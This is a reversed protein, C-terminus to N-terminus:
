GAFFANNVDLQRLVWGRSAAQGLVLRITPKKVVPSLTKFYDIGPRQHFDKTVLRSKFHDISGYVKRKIRFFWRCGVLNYSPNTPVLNWMINQVQSNIEVGMSSRWRPDRLKSIHERNLILTLLSLM